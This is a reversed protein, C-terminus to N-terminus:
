LRGKAKAKQVAKLFDFDAGKEPKSGTGADQGPAGPIIVIGDKGVEIRSVPIGAAQAAKLAAALDRQRFSLRPRPM